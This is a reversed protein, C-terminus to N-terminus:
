CAAHVTEVKPLSCVSHLVRLYDVGGLGFLVADQVIIMGAEKVATTITANITIIVFIDLMVMFVLIGGCAAAACFDATPAMLCVVSTPM